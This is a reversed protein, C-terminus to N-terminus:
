LKTKIVESATEGPSLTGFPQGELSVSVPVSMSMSASVLEQQGEEDIGMVVASGPDTEAKTNIKTTKENKGTRLNTNQLSEKENRKHMCVNLSACCSVLVNSDYDNKDSGSSSSSYRNSYASSGSGNSSGSGIGRSGSGSILGGGSVVTDNNSQMLINSAATCNHTLNVLTKLCVLWLEPFGIELSKETDSNIDNETMNELKDVNKATKEDVPLSIDTYKNDNLNNVGEARRSILLPIEPFLNRLRDFDSIIVVNKKKKKSSYKSPSTGRGGPETQSEATQSLNPSRIEIHPSEIPRSKNDLKSESGSGSVSGSVSVSDRGSSSNHNASTYLPM